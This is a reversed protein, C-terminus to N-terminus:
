SAFARQLSALNPWLLPTKDMYARYATRRSPRELMRRQILPLTGLTDLVHNLVFGLADRRNHTAVAFLAFGIWWIQEGLHNPHRCLRWVGTDLVLTDSRSYAALQSDAVHALSLGAVCCFFALLDVFNLAVRDGLYVARLPLCLGVLM